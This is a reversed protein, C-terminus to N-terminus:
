AGKRQATSTRIRNVEVRLNNWAAISKGQDANFALRVLTDVMQEYDSQGSGHKILANKIVTKKSLTGPAKGAPNGSTGPAFGRLARSM